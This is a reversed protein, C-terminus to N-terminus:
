VKGLYLRLRCLLGSALDALGDAGDGVMAGAHADNEPGNMAPDIDTGYNKWDLDRSDFYGRCRHLPQVHM